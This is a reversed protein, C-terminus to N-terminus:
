CIAVALGCASPALTKHLRAASACVPKLASLHLTSGVQWFQIFLGLLLVPALMQGPMVFM